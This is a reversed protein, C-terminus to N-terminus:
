DDSEDWVSTTEGAEGAPFRVVLRSASNSETENLQRELVAPRSANLEANSSEPIQLTITGSEAANWDIRRGLEIVERAQQIKARDNDGRRILSLTQLAQMSLLGVLLIVVLVCVIVAAARRKKSQNKSFSKM